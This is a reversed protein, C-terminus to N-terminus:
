RIPRDLTYGIDQEAQLPDVVGEHIRRLVHDSKTIGGMSEIWYQRAANKGRTKFVEMFALDPRIIEAVLSRGNTGRRCKSCGPGLMRVKAVDCTSEIRNREYASLAVARDSYPVSCEPCLTRVLSQNMLSTVLAPDTILGQDVGIDRLRELASVNDNAHLTTWVGHGTMAARFGTIASDYDRLEGIQMVDPDLRMANAIAGAWDGGLVPTQVAGNITYEPPDEITLVHISYNFIKAVLELACKLSLSKGSGTAGSLINIGTKNHCLATIIEIQEPLYGLDQLTVQGLSNYLLRMVMLHGREMPRTAVRAGYLGISSVFEEKLRGDQSQNPKYYPDGAVDLMSQYITASYAGGQQALLRKHDELVGNIRFRILSEDNRNVIHIDSAGLLTADRLMRVIEEQVGTKNISAGASGAHRYYAQIKEPSSFHPKFDVGLRRLRDQYALVYPNIRHSESVILTGDDLFCLMDREDSSALFQGEDASLVRAQIHKGLEGAVAADEPLIDGQIETAADNLSKM